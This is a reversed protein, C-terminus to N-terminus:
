KAKPHHKMPVVKIAFLRSERSLNGADDYARIRFHYIGPTLPTSIVVKYNNNKRCNTVGVVVGAPTVVQIHTHFHYTGVLAPHKLPTKIHNTNAQIGQNKAIKPLIPSPMPRGIGLATQLVLSYDNTALYAPQPSNTDVQSALTSLASQLGGIARPSASAATLVSGFNHTLANIDGATISVKSFLPRLGYNYQNLAATAPKRLKSIVQYLNAQIATMEAKPLFRGPRIKELYYPLHEVRLEKQQYTIPINLNTSVQFGFINALNPTTSTSLLARTELGESAPVFRRRDM